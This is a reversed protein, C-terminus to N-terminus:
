TVISNLFATIKTRESWEIREISQYKDSADFYVTQEGKLHIQLRNVVPKREAIENERLRWCAEAGSAYRKNQFEQVENRHQEQVQGIEDAYWHM